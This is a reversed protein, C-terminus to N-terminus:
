ACGRAPPGAPVGDRLAQVEVCVRAHSRVELTPDAVTVVRAGVRARYAGVSHRRPWAFTALDGTRRGNLTLPSPTDPRSPRRRPPPRPRYAPRGAPPRRGPRGPRQRGGGCGSRGRPSRSRSGESLGPRRTADARTHARPRRPRTVATRWGTPARCGWTARCPACNPRLGPRVGAAPRIPTWRGACCPRALGDHPRGRPPRRPTGGAGACCRPPRTTAPRPRRLARARRALDLPHRGARVGSAETAPEGGLLLEPPRGPCPRGPRTPTRAPPSRSTPSFPRGTPTSSCTRRSSTATCCDPRTCRRSRAPCSSASATPREVGVADARDALTAGPDHRMVLYPRGDPAVGVAYVEAIHPARRRGAREGRGGPSAAAAPDRERLVKVAVLRHPLRQRYLHVDAQGGSGLPRVYEFGELAPAPSTAPTVPTWRPRPAGAPPTTM